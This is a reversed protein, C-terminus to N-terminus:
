DASHMKFMVPVEALIYTITSLIILNDANNRINVQMTVYNTGM